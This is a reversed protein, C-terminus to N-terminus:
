KFTARLTLGGPYPSIDWSTKKRPNEMRYMEPRKIAAESCYWALISGFAVDSICHADSYLRCVATSTALTYFFIKVPMAKSRKAMVFSITFAMSAHGSPFSHYGAARNFFTLSYNGEERQPRARGVITKLSMELIGATLLSTALAMGTERAWENKVLLGAAYLGGSLIFGSYPKGYHYGVTNVRDFVKNDQGNWFARVPDDALTIATTGGVIAVFKLWDKSEWRLPAVYTYGVADAFRLVGVRRLSDRQPVLLSPTLILFVTLAKLM